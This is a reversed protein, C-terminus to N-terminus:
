EETETRMEVEPAELAEKNRASNMFPRLVYENEAYSMELTGLRIQFLRMEFRPGIEKLDVENRHKKYTHHRFSIFDSQNIFSMVRTAEPKPVPFLFKLINRVRKGLPTTMGHFFLHPYQQSVPIKDPIDHRVVVNHLSFYATPGYPLHCIVIADPAGRTGQVLILDTCDNARAAEVILKTPNGGRNARITNPIILAIEKAFNIVKVSPDRSTTLFIKPDVVGARAYEDDEASREMRTLEDEMRVSEALDVAENRLELPVRKNDDEIVDRIINKNKFAAAERQELSKKVLYERRLRANRRL